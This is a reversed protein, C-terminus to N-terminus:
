SFGLNKSHVLSPFSQLLANVFSLLHRLINMYALPSAVSFRLRTCPNRRPYQLEMKCAQSPSRLSDSPCSFNWQLFYLFPSGQLNELRAFDYFLRCLVRCPTCFFKSFIRLRPFFFHALHSFSDIVQWLGSSWLNTWKGPLCTCNSSESKPIIALSCNFSWSPHLTSHNQVMPDLLVRQPSGCIESSSGKLSFELLLIGLSSPASSIKNMWQSLFCPLFDASWQNVFRSSLTPLLSSERLRFECNSRLWRTCPSHPGYIQDQLIRRNLFRSFSLLCRAFTRFCPTM